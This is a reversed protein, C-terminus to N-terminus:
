EYLLGKMRELDEPNDIEGCLKEGIDLAHIEAAGDLANLANEAYVGTNGAECFEEIKALWKM